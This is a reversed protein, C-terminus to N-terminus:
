GQERATAFLRLAQESGVFRWHWPEYIVRQANNPRFSLEFGFKKANKAMWQFASSRAFAQSIDLYPARGDGVDIAYGTHHESYGPPAVSRAAGELGRRRVRDRFLMAQEDISRFGSIPVISVKSAKAASVMQQWAIAAEPALKEVRGGYKGVVVLTTLEAQPYPFHGLKPSAKPSPTNLSPRPRLGPLLSSAPTSPTPAPAPSKLLLQASNPRTPLPSIATPEVSAGVSLHLGSYNLAIVWSFSTLAVILLAHSRLWSLIRMLGINNFYANAPLTFEDGDTRSM